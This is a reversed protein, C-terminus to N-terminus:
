VWLFGIRVRLERQGSAQWRRRYLSAATMGPCTGVLLARTLFPQVQAVLNQHGELKRARGGVPHEGGAQDVGFPVQARLPPRCALGRGGPQQMAHSPLRAPVLLCGEAGHLQGAEHQHAAPEDQQQPGGCRCARHHKTRHNRLSGQVKERSM